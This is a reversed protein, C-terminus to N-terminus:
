RRAPVNLPRIAERVHDGYLIRAEGTSSPGLSKGEACDQGHPFVKEDFFQGAFEALVSKVEFALCTQMLTACRRVHEGIKASPIGFERVYCTSEPTRDASLPFAGRPGHRHHRRASIYIM